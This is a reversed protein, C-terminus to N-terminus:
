WIWSGAPGDWTADGAGAWRDWVERPSREWRRALSRRSALAWPLRRLVSRRVDGAGDALLRWLHREAVEPPANRVLCLLSNRRQLFRVLPSSSGGSTASLRHTVVARPEYAIRRGALRARLCWDTDEDYAFFPVAFAGLEELVRRTFVPATGSFGFPEAPDDVRGDDPLGAAVEAAVGHDLLHSGAHNVLRTAPGADVTEGDVELAPVADGDPVPVYLARGPRTWRWRDEGAGELGHVGRGVLAELREEGGVRVSRLQRGLVRGDGPAQWPRDPLSLEAFRGALRVKPTVAAVGPDELVAASASLWGPSATADDNLVGVVEGRARALGAAVGGAFGLNRRCRVVEAGARHGEDSAAHAESGNDVVVVEGAEDALSALCPALWGGPRYSVVIATTTPRSVGV